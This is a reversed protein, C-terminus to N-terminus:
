LPMGQPVIKDKIWMYIPVLGYITACINGIIFRLLFGLPNVPKQVDEVKPGLQFLM